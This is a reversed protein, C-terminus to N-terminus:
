PHQFRLTPIYNLFDPQNMTPSPGSLFPVRIMPTAPRIPPPKFALTPVFTSVNVVEVHPTAQPSVEVAIPEIVPTSQSCIIGEQLPHIFNIYILLYM